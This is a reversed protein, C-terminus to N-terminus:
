EGQACEGTPSKPQPPVIGEPWQTTEDSCVKDLQVGTLIVDNLTAGYLSTGSLDANSLDTQDLSSDNLTANVLSAGSMDSQLFTAGTLRTGALNADSLKTAQFLACDPLPPAGEDQSETDCQLDLGALLAGSLDLGSFAKISNPEAARERVFVANALREQRDALRQDLLAAAAFIPVSVM